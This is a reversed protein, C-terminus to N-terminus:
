RVSCTGQEPAAELAEHPAGVSPGCPSESRRFPTKVIVVPCHAERAVGEAVSGMLLRKLGTSGHTGMVILDCNIKQAARLIEVPPDGQTLRHTVEVQPDLPRLRELQQRQEDLFGRIIKAVVPDGGDVLYPPPIVHLLVLQAGYDRALSCSLRFAGESRESYDTPHLITRISLMAEDKRLSKV